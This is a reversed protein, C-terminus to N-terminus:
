LGFLSLIIPTDEEPTAAAIPLRFQHSLLIAAYTFFSPSSIESTFGILPQAQSLFSPALDPEIFSSMPTVAFSDITVYINLLVFHRRRLLPPMLTHRSPSIHFATTAITFIALYLPM